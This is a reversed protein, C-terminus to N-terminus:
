QKEQTKRPGNETGKRRRLANFLANFSVGKTYKQKKEETEQM